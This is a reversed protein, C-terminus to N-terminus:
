KFMRNIFLAQRVFVILGWNLLVAFIIIFGSCGIAYIIKLWGNKKSVRKEHVIRYTVSILLAMGIIYVVIYQLLSSM